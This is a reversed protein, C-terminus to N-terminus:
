TPFGCKPGSVRIGAHSFWEDLPVRDFLISTVEFCVMEPSKAYDTSIGLDMLGLLSYVKDRPDSGVFPGLSSSFKGPPLM